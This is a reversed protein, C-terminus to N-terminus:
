TARVAGEDVAGVWSTVANGGVVAYLVGANDLTTTAKVLRERVKDVARMAREFAAFPMTVVTPQRIAAMPMTM